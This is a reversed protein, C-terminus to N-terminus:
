QARNVYPLLGCLSLLGVVAGRERAEVLGQDYGKRVNGVVPAEQAVQAGQRVLLM